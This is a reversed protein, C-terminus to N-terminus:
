GKLTVLDRTATAASVGSIKGYAKASVGLAVRTAGMDFLHRLVIEQLASM